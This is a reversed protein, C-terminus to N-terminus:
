ASLQPVGICNFCKLIKALFLELDSRKIKSDNNIDFKFGERLISEEAAGRKIM